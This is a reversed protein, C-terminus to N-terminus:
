NAATGPLRRWVLPYGQERAADRREARGVAVLRWLRNHLSTCPACCHPIWGSWLVWRLERAACELPATNIPRAPSIFSFELRCIEAVPVAADAHAPHRTQQAFGRFFTSEHPVSRCLGPHMEERYTPTASHAKPSVEHQTSGM